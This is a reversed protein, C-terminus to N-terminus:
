NAQCNNEEFSMEKEYLWEDITSDYIGNLEEIENKNLNYNHLGEDYTLPKLFSKDDIDEIAFVIYGKSKLYKYVDSDKFFFIKVANRIAFNINAMSQQRLVGSIMFPSNSLMSFYEDKPIFDTLFKFHHKSDKILFKLQNIYVSGGSGYGLPVFIMNNLKMISDLKKIIDAHNNSYTASNGLIISGNEIQSFNYSYNPFKRKFCFLKARFLPYRKM